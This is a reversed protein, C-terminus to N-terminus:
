TNLSLIEHLGHQTLHPSAFIASKLSNEFFSYDGGTIVVQLDEFQGRCQGILADVENIIGEQVGTQISHETSDGPFVPTSDTPSILPLKGTFHHLAEYRMRLGPAISGGIFSGKVLLSTTICTGCDIVLVSQQPYCVCAGAMNAIRDNGLTEPTKYLLGFPLNLKHTLRLIPIPICDSLLEPIEKERVNSIIARAIPFQRFLETIGDSLEADSFSRYCILERNQGVSVKTRSNGRDIALQMKMLM